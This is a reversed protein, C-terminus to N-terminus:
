VEYPEYEKELEKIRDQILKIMRSADSEHFASPAVNNLMYSKLLEKLEEIRAKGIQNQIDYTVASMHSINFIAFWSNLTEAIETREHELNM